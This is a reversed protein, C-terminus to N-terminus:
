WPEVGHRAAHLALRLSVWDSEIQKLFGRVDRYNVWVRGNINISVNIRVGDPFVWIFRLSNTLNSWVTPPVMDRLEFLLEMGKDWQPTPIVVESREIWGRVNGWNKQVPSSIIKNLDIM